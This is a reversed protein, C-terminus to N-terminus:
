LFTLEDKTKRCHSRESSLKPKSFLKDNLIYLVTLSSTKKLTPQPPEGEPRAGPFHTQLFTLKTLPIM